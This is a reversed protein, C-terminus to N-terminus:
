NWNLEVNVADAWLRELDYFKRSEETFVHVILCGFDLLVWNGSRYGERRLPPEGALTLAKETEEVLTKGHTSSSATCIIFYDALVTVKETKLVTIDKAKKEDLAQVALRAIEYSTLM